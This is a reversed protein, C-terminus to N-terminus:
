IDINSFINRTVGNGDKVVGEIRTAINTGVTNPITPYSTGNKDYTTSGTDLINLNATGGCILWSSAEVPISCQWFSVNEYLSVIWTKSGNPAVIPAPLACGEFTATVANLIQTGGQSTWTVNTSNVAARAEATVRIDCGQITSRLGSTAGLSIQCGVPRGNFMYHGFELIPRPAAAVQWGAFGISGAALTNYNDTQPGYPTLLISSSTMNLVSGFYNIATGWTSPDTTTRVPFTDTEYLYITSRTNAPVRSVAFAITRLPSARSGDNADNGTSASVYQQAISASAQLAVYLGNESYRLLNGSTTSPMQDVAIQKGTLITM